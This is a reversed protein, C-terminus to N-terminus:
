PQQVFAGRMASTHTIVLNPELHSSGKLFM